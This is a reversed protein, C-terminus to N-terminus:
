LDVHSKSDWLGCQQEGNRPTHSDPAWLTGKQQQESQKQHRWSYSVSPQNGTTMPEQVDAKNSFCKDVGHM